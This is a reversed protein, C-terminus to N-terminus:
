PTELNMKSITLLWGTGESWDSESVLFRMRQRSRTFWCEPSKGAKLANRLAAHGRGRYPVYRYVGAKTPYARGLFCGACSAGCHFELRRKRM